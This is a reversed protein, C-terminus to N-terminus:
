VNKCSRRLKKVFYKVYAWFPVKLLEKLTARRVEDPFVSWAKKYVYSGCDYFSYVVSVEKVRSLELGSIPKPKSVIAPAFPYRSSEKLYMFM